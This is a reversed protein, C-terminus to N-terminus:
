DREFYANADSLSIIPDTIPPQIFHPIYFTAVSMGAPSIIVQYPDRGNQTFRGTKTASASTIDWVEIVSPYTSDSADTNINIVALRQGNASFSLGSYYFASGNANNEHIDGRSTFQQPATDWDWLYIKDKTVAALRSGDPSFALQYTDNETSHDFIQKVM